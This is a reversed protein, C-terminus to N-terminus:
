FHLRKRGRQAPTPREEVLAFQLKREVRDIRDLIVRIRDGLSYTKRTRQGIIQRTTDHFTYRDDYMTNLPILGEVFLDTLEVFIGYKTISVILGDFDEGVRDSMFKMKKWEMLEREAADARREALSADEAQHRLDEEPIPGPLAQRDEESKASKKATGKAVSKAADKAAKGLGQPGSGLSETNQRVPGGVGIALLGEHREATEALVGKLIRHILLDPYRRIPSTFHTYCTAALAFHGDNIESYRAQKLSRLMLYSVIREEPKGAIKAALKQYMTPTIVIEQPIEIDQPKARHGTSRSGHAGRQEPKIRFRSIPLAGIGLSYGFAAALNEFDFVRRPDPPEHVRYISAVGKQELYTAVAENASLMFEEILRHAFLRESRTVAKMLGNEDFEILPEPLDFDISGRRQRKDNLIEALEQMLLFNDVLPAYRQRADGDGDLILQVATYTMREASRIIGPMIEYSVVEGRADIQMICSMVLRDVQPRLSCIDTSLEIPLMPIARDPFYVSTGRIEAERDIDMGPRIYHAVDAIHVQLEYHGDPLKRVLVADDFDRATEGDITVIPLNRFDRRRTLEAPPIDSAIARAEAIVSQPFRHPLHHKRIIIEVDVGFDDEYGIVEIVRGRPNKNATPWSTIECDVVLGELDEWPRRSAESGIIRDIALRSEPEPAQEPSAAPVVEEGPPIIVDMKIRDDIPRVYNHRDGYHFTGVVTPHAREMVRVVRGESRGERSHPSLEVLVQDGHMAETVDFPPIFVDGQLRERVERDAPRVFGFGDRHMTLTGTVLNRNAAASAIAYRDRAVLVLKGSVVLDALLSELKQREQGRLSLERILQKYGAAGQPQDEIHQLLDSESIM